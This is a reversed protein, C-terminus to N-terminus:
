MVIKRCHFAEAFGTPSSSEIGRIRALARFTEDTFWSKAKQSEFCDLLHTIKEQLQSEQLQVFYNPNGLDGDYKPIEYELIFHNRYTNWTLDCILRHDQHLDSRHHTFILDPSFERKLTEFYEKVTEGSYPLFGDRFDKIVVRNKSYNRLFRKASEEAELKRQPTSTLVVWCVEVQRNSELLKLMTGGCGIEIDDCHAGLCLIKLGSQPFALQPQLM